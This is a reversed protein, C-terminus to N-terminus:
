YCSRHCRILCLKKSETANNILSKIKIENMAYYQTNFM